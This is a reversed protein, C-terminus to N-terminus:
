SDLHKHHLDNRHYHRILSKVSAILSGLGLFRAWCKAKQTWQLSSCVGSRWWVNCHADARSCGKLDHSCKHQHENNTLRGYINLADGSGTGLAGHTCAKCGWSSINSRNSNTESDKKSVTHAYRDRATADVRYHLAQISYSKTTTACDCVLGILYIRARTGVHTRACTSVYGGGGGTKPGNTRSTYRIRSTNPCIKRCDVNTDRLLIKSKQVKGM